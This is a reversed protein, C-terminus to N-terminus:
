QLILISAVEMQARELGDAVRQERGCLTDELLQESAKLVHIIEAWGGTSMANQFEGAIERNPIFAEKADADYGLYGLHILLTLVDDGTKFTCMDNQFSLTNVRIHEGGIMRVIDSRLGDFDMDMYLKLAEYTETATWYNSFYGCKMAAVVSRPNYIHKFQRFIACFILTSSRCTKPNRGNM